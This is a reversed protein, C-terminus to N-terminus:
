IDANMLTFCVPMASRRGDFPGDHYHASMRSIPEGRKRGDAYYFMMAAYIDFSRAGHGHSAAYARM